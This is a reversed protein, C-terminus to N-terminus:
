AVFIYFICLMAQLLPAARRSIRPGSNLFQAEEQAVDSFGLM